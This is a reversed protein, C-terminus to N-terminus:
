HDLFGLGPYKTVCSTGERLKLKMRNATKKQHWMQSQLPSAGSERSLSVSYQHYEHSWICNQPDLVPYGYAIGYATTNGTSDRHGRACNRMLVAFTLGKAWVQSFKVMFPFCHSTGPHYISLLSLYASSSALLYFSPWTGVQIKNRVDSAVASSNRWFWHTPWAIGARYPRHRTSLQTPSSDSKPGLIISCKM